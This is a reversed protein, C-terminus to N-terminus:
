AGGCASGELTINKVQKPTLEYKAALEDWTMGNKYDERLLRDRTNRLIADPKPFYFEEGKFLTCLKLVSEVGILDIIFRYKEPADETVFHPLIDEVLKPNMFYILM